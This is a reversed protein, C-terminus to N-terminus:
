EERLHATRVAVADPATLAPPRSLSNANPRRPVTRESDRMAPLGTGSSRSSRSFKGLLWQLFSPKKGTPSLAVDDTLLGPPSETASPRVQVQALPTNWKIKAVDTKDRATPPGLSIAQGARVEQAFAHQSQSPISRASSTSNLDRQTPLATEQRPPNATPRQALPRPGLPPQGSTQDPAFVTGSRTAEQAPRPPTARPGTAPAAFGTGPAPVSSPPSPAMVPPRARSSPSDIAASPLAASPLAAMTRQIKERLLELLAEQSDATARLDPADEVWGTWQDGQQQILISVNTTGSGM